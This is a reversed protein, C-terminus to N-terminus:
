RPINPNPENEVRQESLLPLQYCVAESSNRLYLRDGILVPHNWTRGKIAQFKALEVHKGPDTRVLVLEGTESIVLVIDQDPLLLLQGKGYRGRKWQREGSELDVCTLVGGDLGYIAGNHVAIDSYDPKLRLTTWLEEVSLEGDVETIEICQSGVGMGSPLLIKDGLVAPQLSRYGSAKWQYALDIEGSKPDIVDLGTNTLMLVSQKGNITSLQPSGYAHNGSPVSWALEGDAIDLAITGKDGGGGANVIAVEDHVLVSSCFGWMPPDRQAVDQLNKMWIERGTRADLRMLQGSAGLVYLSDGAVTPTARPGDGGLADIFRSEIEHTWVQKGSDAVYCVVTEQDQRQEQTFLLKGAVAFSSWGLGIDTRWIEKPPNQQWNPDIRSNPYRGDRNPGRFGPWEPQALSQDIEGLEAIAIESQADRNVVKDEGTQVWRWDLEMAFNGWMGHNQLLTSFGFGLFAFAVAIVTRRFSLMRSFLIAGISFAAVGVPITLVIIPPGKMSADIMAIAMCAAIIIGLLGLMKERWAARSVLLWWLIILVSCLLPGFASSMWISAPGDEELAPLLHITRAVVMGLILLIPPWIRLTQYVSDPIEPQNSKAGDM